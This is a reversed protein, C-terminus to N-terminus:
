RHCIGMELYSPPHHTTQGVAKDRGVAAIQLTENNNAKAVIISTVAYKMLRWQRRMQHDLNTQISGGLFCIGLRYQRSLFNFM